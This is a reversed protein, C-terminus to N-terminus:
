SIRSLSLLNRPPLLPSNPSKTPSPQPKRNRSRRPPSLPHSPLCRPLVLRSPSPASNPLSSSPPSSASSCPASVSGPPGPSLTPRDGQTLWSRKSCSLRVSAFVTTRVPEQWSRLRGVEQVLQMIGVVVTLHVREVNSRLQEPSFQVDKGPALDLRKKPVPASQLHTVQKNWRRLLSFLADNSLSPVLPPVVTSPRRPPAPPPLPVARPPLPPPNSSSLSPSLKAPPLSDDVGLTTLSNLKLLSPNM